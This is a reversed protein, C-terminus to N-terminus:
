RRNDGKAAEELIQQKIDLGVQQSWAEMLRGFIPGPEGDGIVVGNIRTVPMLCYPTSTAPAPFESALVPRLPGRGGGFALPFLTVACPPGPPPRGAQAPTPRTGGRRSLSSSGWSPPLTSCGPTTPSWNM